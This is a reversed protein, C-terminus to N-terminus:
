GLRIVGSNILQLLMNFVALGIVAWLLANNDKRRGWNSMIQLGAIEQVANANPQPIETEQDKDKMFEICKSAGPILVVFREIGPKWFWLFFNKKSLVCKENFTPNPIGRGGVKTLEITKGDKQVPYRRETRIFGDADIMRVKIKPKGWREFM